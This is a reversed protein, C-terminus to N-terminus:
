NTVNESFADAFDPFPDPVEVMVEVERDFQSFAAGSTVNFGEMRYIYQGEAQYGRNQGEGFFEVSGITPDFSTDSLDEEATNYIVSLLADSNPDPSYRLGVRGTTQDLDRREDSLFDDPDFNFSLDGEESHRHGVEFQANLEPTIATQLFINQISHEIDHNPRWGDTTYGFTGASLSYRDYLMSVVGEGGFTDNNGAVGTVNIQTQQREFLPTFENFAAEAPGGRTIINLNTESISPQVPNINIDQLMQAQLLESLRVIEHRRV